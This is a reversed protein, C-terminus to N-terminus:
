LLRVLVFKDNDDLYDKVASMQRDSLYCLEMKGNRVFTSDMSIGINTRTALQHFLRTYRDNYYKAPSGDPTGFNKEFGRFGGRKMKKKSRQNKELPFHGLQEPDESTCTHEEFTEDLFIKRCGKNGEGLESKERPACCFKINFGHSNIHKYLNGRLAASVDCLCCKTCSDSMEYALCVAKGEKRLNEVVEIVKPTDDNDSDDSSYCSSAM